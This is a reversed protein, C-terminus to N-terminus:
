HEYLLLNIADHVIINLSAIKRSTSRGDDSWIASFNDISVYGCSVHKSM